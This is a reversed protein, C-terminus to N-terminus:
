EGAINLLIFLFVNQAQNYIELFYICIHYKNKSLRLKKTNKRVEPYHSQYYSRAHKYNKQNGVSILVYVNEFTALTLSFLVIFHTPILDNFGFTATFLMQLYM